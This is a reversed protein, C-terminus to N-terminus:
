RNALFINMSKLMLLNELMYSRGMKIKDSDYILQQKESLILSNGDVKKNIAEISKGILTFDDSTSIMSHLTDLGNIPLPLDCYYDGVSNVGWYVFGLALYFDLSQSISTIKFRSVHGLIAINFVMKLLEHAYGKRRECLPTFINHISLYMKYRDIKYFIYCLHMNQSDSLAVCGHAEWSFHKDWWDLSMNAFKLTKTDAITAISTIYAARNLNQLHFKPVGLANILENTPM